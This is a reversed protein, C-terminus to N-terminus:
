GGPGPGAARAPHPAAPRPTEAAGAGAGGRAGGGGATGAAGVGGTPGTVLEVPVPSAVTPTVTLPGFPLGLLEITMRSASVTSDTAGASSNIHVLKVFIKTTRDITRFASPRVETGGFWTSAPSASKILRNMMPGTRPSMFLCPTCGYRCPVLVWATANWSPTAGSRVNMSSWVRLSSIESNVVTDLAGFGAVGFSTGSVVSIGANTRDSSRAAKIM